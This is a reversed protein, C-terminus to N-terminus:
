EMSIVYAERSECSVSLENLNKLDNSDSFDDIFRPPVLRPRHSGSASVLSKANLVDNLSRDSWRYLMPSVPSM